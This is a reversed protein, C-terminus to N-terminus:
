RSKRQEERWRWVLVRRDVSDNLSPSDCGQDIYEELIGLLVVLKLSCPSEGVYGGTGRVLSLKQQAVHTLFSNKKLVLTTCRFLFSSLREDRLNSSVASDEDLFLGDPRDSVDCSVRVQATIV